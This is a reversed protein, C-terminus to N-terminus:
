KDENFLAQQTMEFPQPKIKGTKEDRLLIEVRREAEELRKSCVRSLKIGEEFLKLAEKLPLKGAELNKVIGELRNLADEFKLEAM